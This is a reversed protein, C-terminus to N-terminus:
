LRPSDNQLTSVQLAKCKPNLLVTASSDHGLWLTQLCALCYWIVSWSATYDLVKLRDPQSM